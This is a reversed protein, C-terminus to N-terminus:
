AQKLSFSRLVNSRGETHLTVGSLRSHSAPTLPSSPIPSLWFVLLFSFCQLVSDNQVVATLTGGGDSYLKRTIAREEENILLDCTRKKKEGRWWIGFAYSCSRIVDCSGAHTGRLSPSRTRSVHCLHRYSANFLHRILGRLVGEQARTQSGSITLMYTLADKGEKEKM